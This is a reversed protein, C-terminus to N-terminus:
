AKHGCGHPAHGALEAMAFGVYDHLRCAIKEARLVLNKSARLDRGTRGAWTATEAEIAVLCDALLAALQAASYCRLEDGGATEADLFTFGELNATALM